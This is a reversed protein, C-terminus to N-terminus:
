RHRTPTSGTHDLFGAVIDTANLLISWVVVGAMIAVIAVSAIVDRLRIHSLHALPSM